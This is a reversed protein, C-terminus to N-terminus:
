QHDATDDPNGFARGVQLLSSANSATPTTMKDQNSLTQPGSNCVATVANAAKDKEGEIHGHEASKAATYKAQSNEAAFLQEDELGELRLAELREEDLKFFDYKDSNGGKSGDFSLEQHQGAASNQGTSATTSRTGPM